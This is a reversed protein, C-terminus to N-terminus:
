PLFSPLRRTTRGTGSSTKHWIAAFRGATTSDSVSGETVAVRMSGPLSGVPANRICRYKRQVGNQPRRRRGPERAM